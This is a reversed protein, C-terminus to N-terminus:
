EGKHGVMRMGERGWCREFRKGVALERDEGGVGGIRMGEGEEDEDWRGMGM